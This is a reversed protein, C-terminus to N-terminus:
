LIVRCLWDVAACVALGILIGILADDQKNV